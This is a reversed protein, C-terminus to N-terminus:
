HTAKINKTVNFILYFFRTVKVLKKEKVKPSAFGGFGCYVCIQVGFM